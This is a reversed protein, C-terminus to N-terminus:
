PVVLRDELMTVIIIGKRGSLFGFRQRALASLASWQWSKEFAGAITIFLGMSDTIWASTYMRRALHCFRM